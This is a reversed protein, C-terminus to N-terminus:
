SALRYIRKKKKVPAPQNLTQVAEMKMCDIVHIYIRCTIDTSGHGLLESIVKVNQNKEFLRTAFTHRLAHLGIRHVGSADCMRHLTTLLNRPKVMQGYQNAIVLGQTEGAGQQVKLDKLADIADNTLPVIRTSKKTKPTRQIVLKQKNGKEERNQIMVANKSVHLIKKELDVDNWTLALAEGMRLGTNLILLIAGGAPYRRRGTSWCSYAIEKLRIMEDPSLVNIAEETDEGDHVIVDARPAKMLGMPNQRIMNHYAEYKLYANMADYAKKVSSVKM